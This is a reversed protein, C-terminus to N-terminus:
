KAEGIDIYERVKLDFAPIVADQVSGGADAIARTAHDIGAFHRFANRPSTRQGAGTVAQYAGFLDRNGHEAHLWKSPDGREDAALTCAKWYRHAATFEQAKVLGRSFLVGMYAGFLDDQVPIDKWENIMRIREIVPGVATETIEALMGALTDFVNRTHKAKIMHEGSFCGNACIFPASGIAVENALTKDYSSRLAVTIATGPLPSPFGLMGFMQEGSGNLAYTEFTPLADLADAMADRAGNIFSAFPMPQYTLHGKENHEEQPVPVDCVTHYDTRYADPSGGTMIQQSMLAPLPAVRARPIQTDLRPAAVPRDNFPRTM